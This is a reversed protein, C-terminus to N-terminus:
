LVSTPAAIVSMVPLTTLQVLDPPPAQVHDVFPAVSKWIDIVGLTMAWDSPPGYPSHGDVTDPQLDHVVPLTSVIFLLIVTLLAASPVYTM